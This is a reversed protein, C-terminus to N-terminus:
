QVIGDKFTGTAMVGCQAGRIGPSEEAETVPVLHLREM